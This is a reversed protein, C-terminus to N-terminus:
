AEPKTEQDAQLAVSPTWSLDRKTCSMCRSESGDEELRFDEIWYKPYNREWTKGNESCTYTETGRSQDDTDSCCEIEGYSCELGPTCIDKHSSEGSLMDRSIEFPCTSIAPPWCGRLTCKGIGNGICYCSNGCEDSASGDKPVTEFILTGDTNWGTSFICGDDEVEPSPEELDENREWKTGDESCTYTETGEGYSCELGPECLARKDGFMDEHSEGSLM